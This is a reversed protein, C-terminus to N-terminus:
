RKSRILEFAECYREGVEDGRVKAQDIISEASLKNDQPRIQSKHVGVVESKKDIDISPCCCVWILPSISQCCFVM